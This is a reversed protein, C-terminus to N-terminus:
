VPITKESVMWASYAACEYVDDLQRLSYERVIDDATYGSGMLKLVFEVTMRTGRVRAKGECVRPDIDIREFKM